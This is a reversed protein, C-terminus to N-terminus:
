WQMMILMRNGAYYLKLAVGKREHLTRMRRVQTQHRMRTLWHDERMTGRAQVEVHLITGPEGPGNKYMHKRPQLVKMVRAELAVGSILAHNGKRRVTTNAKETGTDNARGLLQYMGRRGTEKETLSM